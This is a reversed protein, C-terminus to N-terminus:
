VQNKPNACNGNCLCGSHCRQGRGICGCGKACVGKCKCKKKGGTTQDYEREYAKTLSMHEHQSADFSADLVAQRIEMLNTPITCDHDVVKYHDCPIFYLKNGPDQSIVGNVTVVRCGGAADEVTEFVIGLLAHAKTAERPDMKIKVIDGVEGQVKALAEQRRKLM